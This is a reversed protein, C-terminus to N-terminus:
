VEPCLCCCPTRVGRCLLLVAALSRKMEKTVSKSADVNAFARTCVGGIVVDFVRVNMVCVCQRDDKIWCSSSLKAPDIHSISGKKEVDGSLNPRNQDGLERTSTDTGRTRRSTM